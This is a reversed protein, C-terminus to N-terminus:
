PVSGGPAVREPPHEAFLIEVTSEARPRFGFPKAAAALWEHFHRATTAPSLLLWGSPLAALIVSVQAVLTAAASGVPFARPHLDLRCGRALVERAAPGTLHLVALASSLDISAGAGACAEVWLSAASGAPQSARLLLWREPRVGLVFHGAAARFSGLAALPVGRELALSELEAARGRLAAIEIIDARLAGLEVGPEEAGSV